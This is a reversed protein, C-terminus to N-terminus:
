KQLLPIVEASLEIGHEEVLKRLNEWTGVDSWTFPAELMMLGKTKEMVGYDISISQVEEFFAELTPKKQLLSFMEPLFEAICEMMKQVPFIFMGSNWYYNKDEFYKQATAADPKEVFNQVTMALGRLPRPLGPAADTRIYGFQTSSFTPRIGITVITNHREAMHFTEKLTETFLPLPTIFHDAPCAAVIANKNKQFLQFCIWALCPATNKKRTEGFIQAPILDPLQEQVLPIYRQNTAILINKQPVSDLLRVYTQQLLSQKQDLLNLFQKPRSPTSLPAFRTGEGGAMILAYYPNDQQM